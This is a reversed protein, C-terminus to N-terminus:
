YEPEDPEPLTIAGSNLHSPPKIPAGVFADPEGSDSSDNQLSELENRLDELEVMTTILEDPPVSAGEPLNTMLEDLRSEQARLLERTASPMRARRDSPDLRHNLAQRVLLAAAYDAGALLRAAAKARVQPAWGGHMRCM